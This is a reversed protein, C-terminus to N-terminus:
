VARVSCRPSTSWRSSATGRSQQSSMHWFFPGLGLRVRSAAEDVDVVVGVDHVQPALVLAVSAEHVAGVRGAHVVQVSCRPSELCALDAGDVDVALGIGDLQMALVLAM